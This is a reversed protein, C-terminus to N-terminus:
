KIILRYPTHRLTFPTSHFYIQESTIFISQFWCLIPSKQFVSVSSVRLLTSFMLLWLFCCLFVSRWERGGLVLTFWVFIFRLCLDIFRWQRVTLGGRDDRGDMWGDMGRLEDRMGVKRDGGEAFEQVRVLVGLWNILCQRRGKSGTCLPGGLLWCAKGRFSSWQHGGPIGTAKPVPRAPFSSPSTLHPLRPLKSLLFLGMMSMHQPLGTLFQLAVFPFANWEWPDFASWGEVTWSLGWGAFCVLLYRCVFMCVNTQGLM